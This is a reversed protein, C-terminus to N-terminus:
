EAPTKEEKPTDDAKKKKKKTKDDTLDIFINTQSRPRFETGTCSVSIATMARGCPTPTWIYDRSCTYSDLLRPVENNVYNDAKTSCFADTRYCQGYQTFITHTICSITRDITKTRPTDGM